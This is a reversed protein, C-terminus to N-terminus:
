LAWTRELGDVTTERRTFIGGANNVLVDLRAHAQRFEQALRRVAAQSSLDALLFEVDRNATERKIWEVTERTRDPDRGVITVDFGQRALGLATERGIGTTAGTVLVTQSRRTAM